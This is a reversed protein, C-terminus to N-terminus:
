IMMIHLKYDAEGNKLNEPKSKTMGKREEIHVYM